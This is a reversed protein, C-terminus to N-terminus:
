KWPKPTVESLRSTSKAIKNLILKSLIGWHLLKEIKESDSYGIFDLISKYNTKKLEEFPIILEDSIFKLFEGIHNCIIDLHRVHNATSGLNKLDSDRAKNNLSKLEKEWYQIYDLRDSANYVKASELVVQLIRKKFDKEKFIEMVEFMCNESRLFSDSILMLMYDHDRVGRMYEKLNTKYKADRVDRTFTIGVKKFDNDIQEANAKDKWSYSLFIKPSSPM